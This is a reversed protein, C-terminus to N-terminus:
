FFSTMKGLVLDMPVNTMKASMIKLFEAKVPWSEKNNLKAFAMSVPDSPITKMRLAFFMYLAENNRSMACNTPRVGCIPNISEVSAGAELLRNAMKISKCYFLCTNGHFDTAHVDAGQKLLSDVLEFEDASVAVHLPTLGDIAGIEGSDFTPISNMTNETRYSQENM